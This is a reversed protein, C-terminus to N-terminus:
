QLVLPRTPSGASLVERVKTGLQRGTFPKQLFSPAAGNVGHRAVADASYGSVLLVRIAPHVTRIRTALEPGSLQPMVVDTVLLDIQDHTTALSLADQCTAAELVQYGRSKLMNVTIHRVQADDEAVLVIESGRGDAQAPAAAPSAPCPRSAEPLLISFRAGGEPLNAATIV